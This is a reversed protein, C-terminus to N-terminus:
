QVTSTVIAFFRSYARTHIHMTVYIPARAKPAISANRPTHTHTHTRTRAHIHWISYKPVYLVVFFYFQFFTVIAMGPGRILHRWVVHVCHLTGVCAPWSRHVCACNCASLCFSCVVCVFGSCDVLMHLSTWSRAKPDQELHEKDAHERIRAVTLACIYLRLKPMVPVRGLVIYIYIYIYIPINVGM